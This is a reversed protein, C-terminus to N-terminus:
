VSQWNREQRVRWKMAKFLKSVVGMYVIEHPAAIYDTLREVTFLISAALCAKTASFVRRGKYNNFLYSDLFLQNRM